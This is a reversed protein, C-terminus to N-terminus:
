ITKGSVDMRETKYYLYTEELAAVYNDVTVHSTKRGSSTLYYANGKMSVPSGIVNSMYKAINKLLPIDTVKRKSADDEKKKLM